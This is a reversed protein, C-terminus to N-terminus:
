RRVRISPSPSHLSRRRSLDKARDGFDSGHRLAMQEEVYRRIEAVFVRADFRRVHSQIEEPDFRDEVSEYNLMAKALSAETQEPFFVGTFGVCGERDPRGEGFDEPGLGVVTELSGGHGYAIVPRGFAQAEVSVLGFDEDAPFLLARCAAYHHKLEAEGVRGLFEITPGASARLAPEEPGVGAIRLKRGLRNCAAIALDVRKAPVLRGVSLYYDGRRDALGAGGMDVPPYIVTSQRRYYKSVRDAVYRSNAIFGDIRQAAAFDWQRMYQSVPAFAASALWPMKRRYESYQDWFSRPPSHCYCLHVAHQDTLVGKTAAGDASIVLDYGSLDLCEVALPYLPLLHRYIRKAGPIRGLFSTTIKRGKLKEPIFKKDVLLTFFSAEPYMEALTELVRESGGFSLSYHYTIAVRIEGAARTVNKNAKESM